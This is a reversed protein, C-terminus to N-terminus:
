RKVWQVKKGVQMGFMCGESLWCKGKSPNNKTRANPVIMTLKVQPKLVTGILAGSHGWSCRPCRRWRRFSTGHSGKPHFATEKTLSGVIRLKASPSNSAGRVLHVKKSTAAASERQRDMDEIKKRLSNVWVVAFHNYVRDWLTHHGQPATSWVWLCSYDFVRRYKIATPPATANVTRATLWLSVTSLNFRCFLVFVYYSLLTFVYVAIISCQGIRHGQPKEWKVPDSQFQDNQVDISDLTRSRKHSIFLLSTDIGPRCRYHVGWRPARHLRPPTRKMTTQLWYRWGRREGGGGTRDKM